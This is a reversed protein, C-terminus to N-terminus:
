PRRPRQRPSALRPAPLPRRRRSSPGAAAGARPLPGPPPRRPRVPASADSQPRRHCRHPGCARASALAACLISVPHLITAPQGCWTLRRRTPRHPSPRCDLISMKLYFIVQQSMEERIARM